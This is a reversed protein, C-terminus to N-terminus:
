QKLCSGTFKVRTKTDYYNLEPNLSNGSIAPPKISEDSLGKSKWSSVYNTNTILKFYKNIPQFVLHNFYQIIWIATMHKFIKNKLTRIFREAVVFKAENFKSYM